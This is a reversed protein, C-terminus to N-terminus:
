SEEETKLRKAREVIERIETSEMLEPFGEIEEIVKEASDFSGVAKVIASRVGDDTAVYPHKKLERLFRVITEESEVM